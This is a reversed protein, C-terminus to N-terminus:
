DDGAPRSRKRKTESRRRKASLRREISGRTPRTKKRRRPVQLARWILEALREEALKRNRLQSRHQAANIHLVGDGNLRHKLRALLRRRQLDSLAGSRQPSWWLTVRSETRNVHQGGPGSSRSTTFVLEWEPITLEDRVYVPM